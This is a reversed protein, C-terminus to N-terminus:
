PGNMATPMGAPPRNVPASSIFLAGLLVDVAAGGALGVVGAVVFGTVVYGVQAEPGKVLHGVADRVGREGVGLVLLHEDAWASGLRAGGGPDVFLELPGVGWTPLRVSDIM